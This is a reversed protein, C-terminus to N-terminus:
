ALLFEASSVHGLLPGDLSLGAVYTACQMAALVRVQCASAANQGSFSLGQLIGLLKNAGIFACAASVAEGAMSVFPNHLDADGEAHRLQQHHCQLLTGVFASFCQEAEQPPM